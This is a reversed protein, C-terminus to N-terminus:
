WLSIQKLEEIVNEEATIPPYKARAEELSMGMRNELQPLPELVVNYRIHGFLTSSVRWRPRDEERAKRVAEDTGENYVVEHFGAMVFGGTLKEFMIGAQLILCGDQVKVAVKKGNRLWVFLGPFRSKGHITIFNLDYHYGAFISGMGFKELDSGTPALLHPAGRLMDVMFGPELGTAAEFMRVVTVIANLMLYGWTNMTSEWESFDAPSINPYEYDSKGEPFEGIRWFYRWKDDPKPPCETQAKNGEQLSNIRECHNRAREVREPTAGVQYHLDPKIEPVIVDTYFQSSARVFYQELMDLFKWNDNENVRPDKIVLVGTHHFSDAVRQCDRMIDEPVSTYNPNETVYQLMASVDVHEPADM